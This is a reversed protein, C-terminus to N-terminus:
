LHSESDAPYEGVEILAATSDLVRALARQADAYVTDREAWRRLVSAAERLTQVDELDAV